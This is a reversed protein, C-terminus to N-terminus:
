VNARGIEGGSISVDHEDNATVAGNSFRITRVNRVNPTGSEDIVSLQTPHLTENILKGVWSRLGNKIGDITDTAAPPAAPPAAVPGQHGGQQGASASINGIKPFLPKQKKRAM